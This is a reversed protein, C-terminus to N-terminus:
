EEAVGEPKFEESLLTQAGTVVIRTGPTLQNSVFYGSAVPNDTRIEKRVFQEGASQVYVYAKGSLRVVASAPVTVGARKSSATPIYATVALRPRLGFRSERLRFLFSQGPAKPEAASATAIRDAALFQQEQGAPVIRATVGGAPLAEGVPLDIRAVLRDLRATRLLPTGAEVSEGPQAMNEVVTGESQSVLPISNAPGGSQLSNEITRANERAAELRARETELKSRAEEVVRDSVNKADANLVRAREYAARASEAAAAASDTESRATALQTTLTVRDTPAIRPLVAGIVSGTAVMQGISPWSGRPGAQLTGAVPSRVTFTRSPDEELRGYAILQPELSTQVVVATQLGIRRQVPQAIRIVAEGEATHRVIAPDTRKKARNEEESERKCGATLSAILVASALLSSSRM